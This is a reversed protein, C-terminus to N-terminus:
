RMALDPSPSSTSQDIMWPARRPRLSGALVATAILASAVSICATTVSRHGPQASAIAGGVAALSILRLAVRRGDMVPQAIEDILPAALAVPTPHGLRQRAPEIMCYEVLPNIDAPRADGFEAGVRWRDDAVARVNRVTIPLRVNACGSSTSVTAELTLEQRSTLERNTEFGAGLVTLDVIVVPTGAVEAPMSALLRAARRLQNRKAFMRLVDLSMALSWLSVAILGALWANPMAGLAHTLQESLGRLMMVLGLVVVSSVLAGGHQLTHPTMIPARRLAFAVPHRMGQFSAGLNRLSCRTRDGPRLTWGSMLALGLSTLAWGPAWATAFMMVNPTLPLHGTLLAGVIVALFGMRRLGSLPRVAWSAIALRQGVRLANIRLLGDPGFLMTRAACAHQVRHEYASDQSRLVQRVIVAEGADAVLRWGATMLAVSWEAQAEIPEYELVEVSDVAARRILAGSESLIAAGRSGLAPNLTSREFTLEHIGNPGHEASDDDAMMSQGIVAAVDDDAMLPLLRAIADVAPIDGADLLLFIPSSSAASCTKLGNLDDVDPAAYVAGFEASLLAIERRAHLDVVVTRGGVMSQVALMSARAQHIPQHDVRVVVDIDHPEIGAPNSATRNGRVPRWLAWALLASGVFGVLEVLLALAVLWIPSGSPLTAARWGLYVVTSLLGLSTLGRGVNHAQRNM